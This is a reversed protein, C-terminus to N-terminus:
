RVCERIASPRIMEEEKLEYGQNYCRRRRLTQIKLLQRATLIEHHRGYYVDAPTVNKLSEHVRDNNYHEVFKGIERELVEPQYYNRLKVVNKMTRHYREIKGQTQPHYPAGRTHKIDHKELYEGLEKSIYCPGNDSLLRPRHRVNIQELGTKALADDLTATVDDATMSTTLRWSVIYRSYDDLVTSLYYWGWRMIKFYTFDTQWLEHVRKTKHKFENAASMVIYAPSTLLDFDRLIRYVSRESIFWGENDTVHWALERASLEPRELAVTVLREREADPIRNWYRRRQAPQPALRAVGGDRYRGYWEYFTSKSIGLQALTRKVPLDSEEVLRIIELKETQTYRM